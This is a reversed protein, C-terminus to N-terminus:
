PVARCPNEAGAAAVETKFKKTQKPNPPARKKRQTEQDDGAEMVRYVTYRHVSFAEAIDKAPIGNDVARVIRRKMDESLDPGPM